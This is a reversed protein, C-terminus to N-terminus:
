VAGTLQGHTDNRRRHAHLRPNGPSIRKGSEDLSGSALAKWRPCARQDQPGPHAQKASEALIRLNLRMAFQGRYETTLTNVSVENALEHESGVRLAGGNGVYPGETGERVVVFDIEM